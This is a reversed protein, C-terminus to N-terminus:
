QGIFSNFVAEYYLGDQDTKVPVLFIDIEGLSEHSLRFTRQEPPADPPAQFLLTYNEQTANILHEDFKVLRLDISRGDSSRTRFVSDIQQSFEGRTPLEGIVDSM